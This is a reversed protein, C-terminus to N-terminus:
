KFMPFKYKDREVERKKVGMKSLCEEDEYDVVFGIDIAVRGLEGLVMM